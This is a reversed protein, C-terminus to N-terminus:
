NEERTSNLHTDIFEVFDPQFAIKNRDWWDQNYPINRIVGSAFVQIQFLTYDNLMGDAYQLYNNEHHVVMARMYNALRTREEADLPEGNLNKFTLPVFYDSEATNMSINAALEARSQQIQVQMLEQNQQMELVLFLIGILVGFNALVTLWHSLKESDM